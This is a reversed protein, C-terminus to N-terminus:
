YGGTRLHIQSKTDEEGLTERENGVGIFLLSSRGNERGVTHVVRVENQLHVPGLLDQKM